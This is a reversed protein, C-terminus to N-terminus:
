AARPYLRQLFDKAATENAFVGGMQQKDAIRFVAFGTGVWEVKYTGDNYLNDFRDVELSTIRPRAFVVQSATAASVICEALWSEDHALIMVRDLKRLAKTANAQVATFDLSNVDGSVAGEPARVLVDRHYPRADISVRNSDVHHGGSAEHEAKGASTAPQRPMSHEKRRNGNLIPEGLQRLQNIHHDTNM